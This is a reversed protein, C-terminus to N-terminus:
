LTKSKSNKKQNKTNEDEEDDEKAPYDVKMRHGGQRALEPREKMSQEILEKAEDSISKHQLRALVSPTKVTDLITESPHQVSANEPSAKLTSIKQEAKEEKKNVRRQPAM